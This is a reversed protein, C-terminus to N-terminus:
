NTAVLAAPVEDAVPVLECEVDIIRHLNRTASPLAFLNPRYNGKSDKNKLVETVGNFLSWVTRGEFEPHSPKRFEKLVRPIDTVNFVDNDMMRIVLDHVKADTLERHKYADFREGQAKFKAALQSVANFIMGALDTYLNGTHRRSVTIEGSFALNDCVYVSSGVVFGAPYSKDYSNRLGLVNCYSEDGGTALQMVGFLRDGNKALAYQEQVVEVDETRLTKKVRDIFSEHPLAIYSDTSAPVRAARVADYTAIAGGCHLMLNANKVM